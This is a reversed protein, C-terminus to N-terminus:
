WAHAYLIVFDGTIHKTDYLTLIHWTIVVLVSHGLMFHNEYGLVYVNM